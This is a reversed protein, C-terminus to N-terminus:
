VPAAREVWPDVVLSVVDGLYALFETGMGDQYRSEDASTVALVGDWGNGSLPLMVSSGVRELTGFLADSQVSSMRGCRIVKQALIEVFAGRKNNSPGVFDTTDTNDVFAPDAFILVAVATADFDALLRSKLTGLIAEPGAAAMLALALKHVRFILTENRSALEVLQEFRGQLERNGERLAAVQREFLSVADGTAHPIQLARLVDPHEVLFDPNERLYTAVATASLESQSERDTRIQTSM